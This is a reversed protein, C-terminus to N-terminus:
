REQFWEPYRFAVSVDFTRSAELILDVRERAQARGPKAERIRLRVVALQEIFRAFTPDMAREFARRFTSAVAPAAGSTSTAVRVPGSKAVAMMSVSSFAPQDVCWLLFRHERSLDLLRGSFDRETIASLVLFADAVDADVLATHDVVHRVNAGCEELSASKQEVEPDDLPGIVVCDRAAVTLALPFFPPKRGV